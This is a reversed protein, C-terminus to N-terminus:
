HTQPRRYGLSRRRTVGAEYEFEEVLGAEVLRSLVDRVEETSIRMPRGIAWATIYAPSLPVQGLIRAAMGNAGQERSIARQVRQAEGYGARVAPSRQPERLLRLHRRPSRGCMMCILAPPLLPHEPLDLQLNGRCWGCRVGTVIGATLPESRDLPSPPGSGWPADDREADELHAVM